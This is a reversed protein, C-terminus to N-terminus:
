GSAVMCASGDPRIELHRRSGKWEPLVFVRGAQGAAGMTLLREVHFHGMVIIDHGADLYHQAYERIEAEPFAAKYALNTGSLRRTLHDALRSRSGRPVLNFLKWILASRSFARWTRYLRDASNVMDGHVALISHGGFYDVLERNSCDDLADGTHLAGIRYDRNGEVYRVVVGRRRLERFTQTVAKHHEREMEPRGLWLNFLDGMLVIRSTTPVLDELFQLFQGVEPQGQDLHVDGIYVLNGSV